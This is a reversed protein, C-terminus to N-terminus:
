CKSANRECKIRSKFYLLRSMGFKFRIYLSCLGKVFYLVTLNKSLFQFILESFVKGFIFCTTCPWYTQISDNLREMIHAIDESPVIKNVAPIVYRSSHNKDM